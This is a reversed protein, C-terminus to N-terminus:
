LGSTDELTVKRKNLLDRVIQDTWLMKIDDRCSQIVESVEDARKLSAKSREGESHSRHSQRVKELASKWGCNSHVFFESPLPRPTDELDLFAAAHTSTDHNSVDVPELSASGLIAELDKQIQKLPGLRLRLAKQAGSFQLPKDAGAEDPSMSIEDAILDLIMNVSRVLNMYIVTRWAARENLWSERAFKLQFDIRASTM